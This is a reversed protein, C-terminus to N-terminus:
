DGYGGEGKQDSSFWGSPTKGAIRNLYLHYVGIGLSIALFIMTPVLGLLFIWMFAVRVSDAHTVFAAITGVGGVVFLAAALAVLGLVLKM